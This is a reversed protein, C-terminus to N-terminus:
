KRFHQFLPLEEGESSPALNIVTPLAICHLIFLACILVKLEIIRQTELVLASILPQLMNSFQRSMIRKIVDHSALTKLKLRKSLDHFPVAKDVQKNQIFGM